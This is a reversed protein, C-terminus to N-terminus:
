LIILALFNGDSPKPAKKSTMLYLVMNIIEVKSTLCSIKLKYM